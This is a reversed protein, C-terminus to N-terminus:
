VIAKVNRKIREIGARRLATKGFRKKFEKKEMNLFENSSPLCIYRKGKKNFPCVEQCRDCGFFFPYMKKSFEEKIEGKYEISLYSLCRRADFCYPRKLAGIPCSEICKECNGCQHEIIKPEPFPFDATTFIESLFVYSGYGPVILMNNKGIFGVGAMYAISRELVPASDVCIRIKADPFFKKITEESLLRCIRKLRIHYDEKIPETYRASLLGDPTSPINPSYPYALSIITKCDDLIKKPDERIDVYRKMWEMEANKGKELWRLFEDFFIPKKPRIFGIGVFGLEKAKERIIEYLSYSM